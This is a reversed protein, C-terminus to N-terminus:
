RSIEYDVAVMSWNVARNTGDAAHFVQDLRARLASMWQEGQPNEVFNSKLGSQAATQPSIILHRTDISEDEILVAVVKGPGTPEQATFRIGMCGDPIRLTQGAPVRDALAMSKRCAVPASAPPTASPFLQTMKGNADIDFIVLKGAQGTRFQYYVPEGLRLRNGPEISLSLGADNGHPLIAEVTQAPTPPAAPAPRGFGLFDQGSKADDYDKDPTLGLGCNDQHKCYDASSKRVYELLEAYSVQKDGNTDAKLNAGEVFAATFVGHANPTKSAAELATQNPSVAFFAVVNGGGTVFGAEKQHNLDPVRAAGRIGPHQWDPTKAMADGSEEFAARTVTGSHCSDFVALVERGALRDLKARIEDDLVFNKGDASGDHAVLAEDQRDPEDGNLDATQDGHGSYYLVVRDGPSSGEVLWNDIATLIGDHTADADKLEKIEDAKFGLRRTLLGRFSAIDNHAGHLSRTNQYQNIGILLARDGANALTPLSLALATLIAPLRQQRPHPM